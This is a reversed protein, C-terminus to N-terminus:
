LEVFGLRMFSNDILNVFPVEVLLMIFIIRWNIFSQDTPSVVDYKRGEKCINLGDDFTNNRNIVANLKYHINITM